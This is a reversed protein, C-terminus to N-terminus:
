TLNLVLPWFLRGVVRRVDRHPVLLVSSNTLVNEFNSGRRRAKRRTTRRTTQWTIRWTTRRALRQSSVHMNFTSAHVSTCYDCYQSDCVMLVIVYGHFWVINPMGNTTRWANSDSTCRRRLLEQFRQHKHEHMPSALRDSSTRPITKTAIFSADPQSTTRKRLATNSWLCMLSQEICSWNRQNLQLACVNCLRFVDTIM